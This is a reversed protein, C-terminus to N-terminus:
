DATDRALGRKRRRPFCRNARHDRQDARHRASRSQSTTRAALHHGRRRPPGLVLEEKTAVHRFFTRPAVGAAAAIEDTTVADYGREAFLRFAARRIGARIQARQRDRLTEERAVM